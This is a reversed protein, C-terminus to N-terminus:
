KTDFIHSFCISFKAKFITVVQKLRKMFRCFIILCFVHSDCEFILTMDRFVFYNTVNRFVSMQSVINVSAKRLERNEEQLSKCKLKFTELEMKLVRNEQGLSEIRKQLQEMQAPSPPKMTAGGDISSTDSELESASDAM